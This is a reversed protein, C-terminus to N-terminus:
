KEFKLAFTKNVRAGINEYDFKVKYKQDYSPYIGRAANEAMVEANNLARRTLNALTLRDKEEEGDKDKIKKNAKIDLKKSYKESVNCKLGLRWLEMNPYLAKQKLLEIGRLMTELNFKNGAFKDHFYSNLNDDKVMMQSDLSDILLNIDSNIEQRTIQTPVLLLVFNTRWYGKYLHNIGRTAIKIEEFYHNIEENVPASAKHSAIFYVGRKGEYEGSFAISGNNNVWTTFDQSWVDGYDVYSEYVSEYEKPVVYNEKLTLLGNKAMHAFYYSPSFRLYEYFLRIREDKRKRQKENVRKQILFGNKKSSYTNM